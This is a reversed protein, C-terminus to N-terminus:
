SRPAFLTIESIKVRENGPALATIWVLYYRHRGGKLRFRKRKTDIKGGTVKQWGDLQKPPSAGDAVRIEATWGPDPTDVEISRADVGPDADVYIGV